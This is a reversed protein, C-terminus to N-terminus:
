KLLFSAIDDINCFKDDSFGIDVLFQNIEDEDVPDEGAPNSLM